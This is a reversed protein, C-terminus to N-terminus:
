AFTDGRASPISSGTLPSRLETNQISNGLSALIRQNYLQSNPYSHYEIYLYCVTDFSSKYSILVSFYESSVAVFPTWPARLIVRTSDKLVFATDVSVRNGAISTDFIM